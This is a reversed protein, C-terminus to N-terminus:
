GGSLFNTLNDIYNTLNNIPVYEDPTHCQATLGPGYNFCPVNLASLQAIDTWAQKAEVPVDLSLCAKKFFDSDIVRGSPSRDIITYTIGDINLNDIEKLIFKEADELSHVPSFRYNINAIWKDPVTTRGLKSASETISAIDKFEVGFINHSVPEFNAFYNILPLSKYLANEGDWPRASHASKGSIEINIHISGVCGIQLTLNTPEGVIALDITNFFGSHENILDFLGNDEVATGEERSYLVLSLQYHELIKSLNNDIIFLFCALASQMDSAGSGHILGSKIRPRFFDPVVDLHGVLALHPLTPDTSWKKILGDHSSFTSICNDTFELRKLFWDRLKTENFTPSPISLIELLLDQINTKM